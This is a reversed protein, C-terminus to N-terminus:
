LEKERISQYRGKQRVMRTTKEDVYTGLAENLGIALRDMEVTGSARDTRWRRIAQKGQQSVGSKDIIYSSILSMLSWAEDLELIVQM